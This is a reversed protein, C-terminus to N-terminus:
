RRADSLGKQESAAMMITNGIWEGSSHFIVTEIGVQQGLGSVPFQVISLGHKALVPRANEIVSGLGAFKNKLFPNKSDMKAPQMEGQAKSLADALSALTASHEM